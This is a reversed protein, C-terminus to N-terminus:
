VALPIYTAYGTFNTGAATVLGSYRFGVVDNSRLFFRRGFSAASNGGAAGTVANGLNYGVEQSVGGTGWRQIWLSLGALTDGVALSTTVSYDLVLWVETAPVVFGVFSSTSSGSAAINRVSNLQQWRPLEYYEALNIVPQLVDPFTDPTRGQAKLELYSLLGPPVRNIRSPM